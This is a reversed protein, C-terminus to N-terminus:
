KKELLTWRKSMTRVGLKIGCKSTSYVIAGDHYIVANGVSDMAVLDPDEVLKKIMKVTSVTNSM